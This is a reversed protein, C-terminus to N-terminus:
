VCSLHTWSTNALKHFYSDDIIWVNITGDVCEALFIAKLFIECSKLTKRSALEKKSLLEFHERKGTKKKSQKAQYKERIERGSM